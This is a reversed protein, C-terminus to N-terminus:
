QSGHCYYYRTVAVGLERGITEDGFIVRGAEAHSLDGRITGRVFELVADEGHASAVDEVMRDLNSQPEHTRDLMTRIVDAVQSAERDM